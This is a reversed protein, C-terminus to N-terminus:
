VFMVCEVGNKGDPKILAIDGEKRKRFQGHYLRTQNNEDIFISFGYSSIGKFTAKIKNKM